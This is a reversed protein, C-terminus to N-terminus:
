NKMPRGNRFTFLIYQVGLVLVPGYISLVGFKNKFEHKLLLGPNLVNLHVHHIIRTMMDVRVLALCVDM